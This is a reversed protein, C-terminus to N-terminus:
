GKVAGVTLGSVFYKQVFPYVLIIPGIAVVATAMKISESPLDATSVTIGQQILLQVNAQTVIRQLFYQLPYKKSSQIYLMANYWENWYGLTLFLGITALSPKALPVFVKWYIYFDGAGDIAGSEYLSDPIAKMFNRMLFISWPSMLGPLIMSWISDKLGLGNVMLIYSPILGGSFLTTFYIFFAIQNRYKFDKRCLVYGAMSMFFLGLLTGVVAITITVGYSSILNKSNNFLFKYASFNIEKPFLKYGETIIEKENMFSSTIMLLFPFLCILAFATIIIYFFAKMVKEERGMIKKVKIRAVNKEAAM